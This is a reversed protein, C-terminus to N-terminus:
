ACGHSAIHRNLMARAQIFAERSVHVDHVSKRFNAESGSIQLAIAELAQVAGMYVRIDARLRAELM